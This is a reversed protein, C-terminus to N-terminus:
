QPRARLVGGRAAWHLSAGPCAARPHVRATTQSFLPQPFTRPSVKAKTGYTLLVNSSKIDGHTFPGSPNFDEGKLGRALRDRFTFSVGLKKDGATGGGEGGGIKATHLFDLADAVALMVRMRERWTLAKSAEAFVLPLFLCQPRTM